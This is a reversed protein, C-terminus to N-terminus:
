TSPPPAIIAHLVAGAEAYAFKDAYHSYDPATDWVPGIVDTTTDIFGVQRQQLISRLIRNYM